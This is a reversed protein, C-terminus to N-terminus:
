PDFLGLVDEDMAIAANESHYELRYHRELAATLQAREAGSRGALMANITERARPTSGHEVVWPVIFELDDSMQAFIVLAGRWWPKHLLRGVDLGRNAHLELAVLHEQFRLHGFGVRGDETMPVLINCPDALEHVATLIRPDDMKTALFRRTEALLEDLPLERLGRSHLALAAKRAVLELESPHSQLRSVSKHIDYEGLLLRLRENYLRVESHPLPVRHEALVCLITALIPSRVCGALQPNQALHRKIQEPEPASSDPFWSDIFAALQLETLPLLSITLFPIRRADFVSSRSSVILQCRTYRDALEVVGDVIWPAAKLAEDLGDLILVAGERNLSRALESADLPVGIQVFHRLLYRELRGGATEDLAPELDAKATVRGLPAFLVPAGRARGELMTRAYHQLTTTKGAGAEGILLFNLGTDFVDAFSLSLRPKDGRALPVASAEEPVGVARRVVDHTLAADIAAFLTRCSQLFARLKAVDTRDRNSNFHRVNRRLWKQQERLKEAADQGELRVVFRPESLSRNLTDQDASIKSVKLALRVYKAIDARLTAASARSRAPLKRLVHQAFATRQAEHPDSGSELTRRWVILETRLDNRIRRLTTDEEAITKQHLVTEFATLEQIAVSRSASVTRLEDVTKKYAAKQEQYASELKADSERIMTIGLTREVARIRPSLARWDPEQLALDTPEPRTKISSFFRSDIRGVGFELDAYFRSIDRPPGAHLANILDSNTLQPSLTAVLSADVGRLEAAVDPLKDEVLAVLKPGDLIKVRAGRLAALGEFRSQLARTDVPFPTVFYVPSPLYQQGDTHPVPKEAAQALQNVVESFSNPDSAVASPKCRKVQAVACQTDGIEDTKWCVLDKGDEYPGGHFDVKTYGLARFLPVLVRQSLDNEQLAQFAALLAPVSPRAKRRRSRPTRKAKM